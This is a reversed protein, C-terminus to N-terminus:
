ELSATPQNSLQYKEFAQAIQQFLAERFADPGIWDPPHLAKLRLRVSGEIEDIAALTQGEQYPEFRIERLNSVAQKQPLTQVQKFVGQAEQFLYYLPLIDPYETRQDWGVVTLLASGEPLIQPFVLAGEASNYHSSFNEPSWDWDLTVGLAAQVVQDSGYRQSFASLAYSNPAVVQDGNLAVEPKETVAKAVRLLIPDCAPPSCMVHRRELERAETVYAWLEDVHNVTEFPHGIHLVRWSGGEGSLAGESIMNNKIDTLRKFITGVETIQRAQQRLDAADAADISDALSNLLRSTESFHTASISCSPPSIKRGFTMREGENYVSLRCEFRQNLTNILEQAHRPASAFSPACIALVLALVVRALGSM